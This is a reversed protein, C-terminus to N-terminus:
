PERLEVSVVRGEHILIDAWHANTGFAEYATLFTTAKALEDLQGGCPEGITVSCFRSQIEDYARDTASTAKRGAQFRLMEYTGVDGFMVMAATFQRVCGDPFGTLYFSRPAETDGGADYLGYGSASTVRAGLENPAIECNTGIEGYPLLTGSTVRQSAPGIIPEDVQERAPKRSLLGFLSRKPRSVTEEEPIDDTADTDHSPGPTSVTEDTASKPLLRAFLGRRAPAEEVSAIALSEGEPALEIDELRNVRDFPNGCGSLALGMGLVLVYKKM